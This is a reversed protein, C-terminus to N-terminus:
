LNEHLLQLLYDESKVLHVNMGNMGNYGGTRVRQRVQRKM